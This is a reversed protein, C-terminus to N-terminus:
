IRSPLFPLNHYSASLICHWAHISSSITHAHHPLLSIFIFRCLSTWLHLSTILQASLLYYHCAYFSPNLVIFLSIPTLLHSSQFSSCFFFSSRPSPIRFLLTAFPASYHSASILPHLSTHGNLSYNSVCTPKYHPIRARSVCLGYCETRIFPTFISCIYLLAM